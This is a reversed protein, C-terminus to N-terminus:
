GRLRIGIATAVGYSALYVFFALTWAILTSIAGTEVFVMFNMAFLYTIFLIMFSTIHCLSGTKSHNNKDLLPLTYIVSAVVGGITALPWVWMPIANIVDQIM